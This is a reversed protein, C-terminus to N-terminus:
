PKIRLFKLREKIKKDLHYCIHVSLPADVAAFAIHCAIVRAVLSDVKIRHCMQRFHSFGVASATSEAKGDAWYRIADGHHVASGRVYGLTANWRRRM